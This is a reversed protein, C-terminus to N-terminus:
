AAERTAQAGAKPAKLPKWGTTKAYELVKETRRVGPDKIRGYVVKYIWEKDVGSQRAVTPWEGKTSLLFDILQDHLSNKMLSVM